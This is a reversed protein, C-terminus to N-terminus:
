IEDIRIWSMGAATAATTGAEGDEFVLCDVSLVDLLEAAKLFPHPFPKGKETDSACVMIDILDAIGLVELTKQVMKRSGDSVVGIKYQGVCSKLHEVVFSIPQTNQIFENYFLDSKL